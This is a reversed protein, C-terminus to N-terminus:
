SSSFSLCPTLGLGYIWHQNLKDRKNCFSGSQSLMNNIPFIIVLSLLCHLIIYQIDIYIFDLKDEYFLLEHSFSWNM